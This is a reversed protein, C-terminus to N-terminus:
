ADRAIPKEFFLSIPSARYSGFPGRQRFGARRYLNQGDTNRIGVEMLILHIGKDIAAAEAASLLARGVGQQRFAPDVIMRKLEATGDFHDFVACCGAAVLGDNRAVFLSINPASLTEPNLPRRYAGPYLAAAVTDSLKLLTEVDGQKPSEVKVSIAM